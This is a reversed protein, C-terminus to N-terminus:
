KRHFFIILNKEEPLIQIINWPTVDYHVLCCNNQAVQPALVIQSLIFLYNEFTFHPSKIYELFTMGPIYETIVSYKNGIQYLGFIYAFNPIYQILKNISNIGIFTEHIHEKFKSPDETTKVALPFNSLNYLNIIGLKNRALMKEYKAHTEFTSETLIKNILLQIGQLLGYCRNIKPITSINELIKDTPPYSYKLMSLENEIQQDLPSFIILYNGM